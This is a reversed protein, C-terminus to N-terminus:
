LLLGAAGGGGGSNLRDLGAQFNALQAQLYAPVPGKPKKFQDTDPATLKRYAEQVTKMAEGLM